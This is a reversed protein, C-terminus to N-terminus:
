IAEPWPMNRFPNAKMYDKVIIGDGEICAYEPKASIDEDIGAAAVLGIKVQTPKFELAFIIANPNDPYGAHVKGALKGLIIVDGGSCIESGPNVDGAIIIHKRSEIKQGSRVRGRLMLVDSRHHNWGKSLDRQRIRETPISRKQPPRSVKAVDFNEKLHQKIKEFLDDQEGADGFDIVVSSNIALHKLKKFLTDIEPLLVDEPHSLDLTIWFGDGVGKLKVPVDTDFNIM